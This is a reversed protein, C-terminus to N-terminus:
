SPRSTVLILIASAVRNNRKHSSVSEAYADENVLSPRHHRKHQGKRTQINRASAGHRSASGAGFSGSGGSRRQSGSDTPTPVAQFSAPSSSLNSINIAKSSAPSQGSNSSMDRLESRNDQGGTSAPLQIVDSSLLNHLSELTGDASAEPM